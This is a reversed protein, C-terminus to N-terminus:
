APLLRAAVDRVDPALVSPDKAAEIACLVLV